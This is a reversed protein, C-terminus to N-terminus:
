PVRAEPYMKIWHNRMTARVEQGGTESVIVNTPEVPMHCDICNATIKHGMAKSVGCSQWKHCTLCRDSYLAAPREPAHVDHCTSCTMNKSERYCRSRELLGVQNGHVDPHEATESAISKFYDGLPRGPVYSFAPALAERQIGNHCLACLDVQRNRSFKAPNLIGQDFAAAAESKQKAIHDAGPGHCTECSIGAILSDKDYSNTLPDSSLPRIYSAHCELCGPNVPRSFDASGDQYGPSNIWRNGDKWYSVPLEYLRSGEWYLYTAGRAGSGTVLDIRETRTQLDNGWGTIATEFYSGDKEEMRFFLGPQATAHAPDTIILVNLGAQFSGLVSDKNAIQSTLHHATRLYSLGQKQHCSLCAADGVYKDREAGSKTEHSVNSQTANQPAAADVVETEIYFFAILALLLILVIHFTLRSRFIAKRRSVERCNNVRHHPREM